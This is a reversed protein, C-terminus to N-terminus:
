WIGPVLRATRRRFAEYEEGFQSALLREEATIRAMLVPITALGLALGILSRFALGWGCMLVILGLYSPHRIVSYIGTTVLEHGQQIAVFGSFRRGLVFVPGLRLAGGVAYLAVGTWRVAEGDVVRFGVRDCYAPVAASAVGLAGLAIVVWRDRRDTREGSSLNAKTFLAAVTLVGTVAALAVLAPEAFFVGFGGEAWISGFFFFGISFLSLIAIPLSMSVENKGPYYQSAIKVRTIINEHGVASEVAV